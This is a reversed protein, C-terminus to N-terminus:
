TELHYDFYYCCLFSIWRSVNVSNSKECPMKEEFKGNVVTPRHPIYAGFHVLRLSSWLGTLLM